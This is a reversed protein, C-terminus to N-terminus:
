LGPRFQMVTFYVFTAHSIMAPVLRGTIATVYGWILGTVLATMLLLPNKGAVPDALTVCTPLAQFTFLFATLGVGWRPGWRNTLRSQVWGRWILEDFIAVSIVAAPVWAVQELVKPDGMQLYIRALWAQRPSQNPTILARAAWSGVILAVATLVGLTIDGGNPRLQVRLRGDRYLQRAALAALPLEAFFLLAWLRPQGAWASNSAFIATVISTITVLSAVLM